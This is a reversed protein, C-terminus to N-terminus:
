TGRTLASVAGSAPGQYQPLPERVLRNEPSILNCRMAFLVLEVDGTLDLKEFIRYRYSNITKPSLFLEAAIEPVRRCNVLMLVIQMERQSLQSFAAQQGEEYVTKALAEAVEHCVYKGGGAVRRLSEKLEEFSVNKTLFGNAGSKLFQQPSPFSLDAGLGIIKLRKNALRIRRTVELGGCGPLFLDLLVVDLHPDKVAELVAGSSELEAVVKVGDVNNLKDTLCDRLLKHKEAILVNM